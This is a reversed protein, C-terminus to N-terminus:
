QKVYKVSWRENTNSFVLTYIGSSIGELYLTNEEEQVKQSHILVGFANYVEVQKAQKGEGQIHIIGNGPNPWITFTSKVQPPAIGTLEWTEFPRDIFTDGQSVYSLLMYYETYYLIKWKMFTEGMGVQATLSANEDQMDSEELIPYGAQSKTTTYNTSEFPTFWGQGSYIQTIGDKLRLRNFNPKGTKARLPFQILEDKGSFHEGNYLIHLPQSSFSSAKTITIRLSPDMSYSITEGNFDENLRLKLYRQCILVISDLYHDVQIIENRTLAEKSRSSTSGLDYHFAGCFIDGEQYAYLEEFSPMNMGFHHLESGILRFLRNEGSLMSQYSILGYSKSWVVSDGQLSRIIVVSDSSGMVNMWGRWTIFASDSGNADYAWKQNLPLQSHMTYVTGNVHREWSGPYLEVLQEGLWHYSSDIYHKKTSDLQNGKVEYAPMLSPRMYWIHSSSTSDISAMQYIVESISDNLSTFYVTDKAHVLQWDQAASYNISLCLIVSAYFPKLLTKM